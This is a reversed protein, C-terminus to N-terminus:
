ECTEVGCSLFVLKKDTPIPKEIPVTQTITTPRTQAADVIQQAAAVDASSSGGDGDGDGDSAGDSAGCGALALAAVAVAIAVTTGSRSAGSRKTQRHTRIIDLM